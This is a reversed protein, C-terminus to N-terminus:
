ELFDNFLEQATTGISANGWDNRSGAASWVVRGTATDVLKVQLSVAPEGDIGTKYRWESVGGTLLYPAHMSRAQARMQSLSREADDVRNFTRYGKASLIGEFLNAAREGAQPTDTYNKFAFVAIGVGQRQVDSLQPFPKSVVTEDTSVCGSFLFLAGIMTLILSFIRLRHM